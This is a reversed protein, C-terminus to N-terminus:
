HWVSWIAGGGPGGGPRRHRWVGVDFRKDIRYRQGARGARDPAGDGALEDVADILRDVQRALARREGGVSCAILGTRLLGASSSPSSRQRSSAQESSTQEGAISARSRGLSRVLTKM